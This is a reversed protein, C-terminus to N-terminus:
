SQNEITKNRQEMFNEVIEPLYDKWDMCQINLIQEIKTTDLVSNKPRVARTIYEESTIPSLHNMALNIGKKKALDIFVRSFEYWNTIGTGAYHYVGWKNFSPTNIKEVIELVVRAIDRAATPRGWQDAVIKLEDRSAALKLITKVFNTGYIGFVWSVRLIIYENLHSIIAQEGLLKSQAYAGQPHPPETESYAGEKNGDFVYDTSLHILPIHQQTCYLALQQVFEGNILHALSVEDEAKDVATYASANIILEPQIRFLTSHVVSVNVCDLERRTFAIIEHATSSFLQIIESGVQGNAGLVLIKM